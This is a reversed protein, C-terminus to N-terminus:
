NFGQKGEVYVQGSSDRGKQAGHKGRNDRSNIGNTYVAEGSRNTGTQTVSNEKYVNNLKSRADQGASYIDSYSVRNSGQGTAGGKNKLYVLNSSLESADYSKGVSDIQGTSNMTFSDYSNTADNYSLYAQKDEDYMLFNNRQEQSMGNIYNQNIKDYNTNEFATAFQGYAKENVSTSSHGNSSITSSRAVDPRMRNNIAVAARNGLGYRSLNSRTENYATRDNEFKAQAADFKAQANNIANKDGSSNARNLEDRARNMASQSQNMTSRANATDAQAQGIEEANGINNVHNQLSERAYRGAARAGTGVTEGAVETSQNTGEQHARGAAVAGAVDGLNSRMASNGMIGGTSKLQAGAFGAAGAIASSVRNGNASLNNKLTNMSQALRDGGATAKGGGGGGGAGTTEGISSIAKTGEAQESTKFRGNIANVGLNAAGAAVGKIQGGYEAAVAQATKQGQSVAFGGAQGFILQRFSDIIPLLSFYIVIRVLLKSADMVDFLFAFAFAHISQMFINASIEKIWNDFLGKQKPGTFAMSVIFLPASATLIAIMIARMIYICNLVFTIGLYSFLIVIGALGFGSLNQTESQAQTQFLDVILNNFQALMRIFPICLALSFGVIVFKQLTDMLSMRISPNITSFNITILVKAVAVIIIMWAVIQFILHYKLVVAWWDADMMGAEYANGGRTGQNYILDPITQLGLLNLLNAYLKYVIQYITDEVFSGSAEGYTSATFNGYQAKASAFDTLMFMTIWVADGKNDAQEKNKVSWFNKDTTVATGDGPWLYGKPMAWIFGIAGDEPVGAAGEVIYAMLNGDKDIAEVNGDMVPNEGDYEGYRDSGYYKIYYDTGFIKKNGAATPRIQEMIKISDAIYSKDDINAYGILSKVTALVSNVNAGLTSSITSAREMDKNYNSDEGKRPRDYSPFTFIVGEEDLNGSVKSGGSEAADKIKNGMFPTTGSKTVSYGTWDLYFGEAVATKMDEEEQSAGIMKSETSIQTSLNGTEDWYAIIRTNDHGGTKSAYVKTPTFAGWPLFSFILFFCLIRFVISNKFNHIKM